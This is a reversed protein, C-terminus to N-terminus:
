SCCGSPVGHLRVLFVVPLTRFQLILIRFRLSKSEFPFNQIQFLLCSVFHFSQVELHQVDVCIFSAPTWFPPVQCLDFVVHVGSFCYVQVLLLIGLCKRVRECKDFAFENAFVLISERLNRIVFKVFGNKRPACYGLFYLNLYFSANM